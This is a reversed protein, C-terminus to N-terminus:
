QYVKLVLQVLRVQLDMKVRLALQVRLDLLDLLDLIELALQELLVLQEPQDLLVQKRQPQERQVQRV